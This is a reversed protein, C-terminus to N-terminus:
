AAVDPSACDPCVLTDGQMFWSPASDATLGSRLDDAHRARHTQLWEKREARKKAAVKRARAPAEIEWRHAWKLSDERHLFWFVLLVVILVVVWVDVTM